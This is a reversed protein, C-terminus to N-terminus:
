KPGDRGVEAAPDLLCIRNKSDAYLEEVSSHEIRFGQANQLITPLVLEEPVSTLLFKNETQEAELAIQKYELASWAELEPDLHEIIYTKGSVHTRGVVM